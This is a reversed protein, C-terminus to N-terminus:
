YKEYMTTSMLVFGSGDPAWYLIDAKNVMFWVTGFKTGNLVTRM